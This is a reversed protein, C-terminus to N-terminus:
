VRSSVGSTLSSKEVPSRNQTQIIRATTPNKIMTAIISTRRELFIPPSLLSLSSSLAEKIPDVLFEYLM